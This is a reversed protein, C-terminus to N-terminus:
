FAYYIGFTMENSFDFGFGRQIANAIEKDADQYGLFGMHGVISFKESLSYSVGPKIGVNWTSYDEDGGGVTGIEFGGDFFLKFNGSKVVNYRVYPAVAFGDMVNFGEAKFSSYELVLAVSWNESLDYGVEPSINLIRKTESYEADSNAWFGFSGGVWVQANAAVAAVMVMLTLFIKKM